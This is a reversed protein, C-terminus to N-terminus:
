VWDSPSLVATIDTAGTDEGAATLMAHAQGRHHTQHNFMHILVATRPATFERQAMGSFWTLNGSLWDDTIGAAWNRIDEDMGARRAQMEAFDGSIPNGQEPKESPMRWGAFRSMWAADAWLLHNLTGHISGFFAGRDLKRDEDSLREAAGYVRRNMEANYASLVRVYQPTIM